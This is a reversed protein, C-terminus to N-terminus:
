ENDGRVNVDLNVGEGDGNVDVDVGRRETRTEQEEVQGDPDITTTEERLEYEGNKERLERREVETEGFFGEDIETEEAVKREEATRDECGVMAGFLGAITLLIMFRYPM